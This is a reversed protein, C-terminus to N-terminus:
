RGPLPYLSLGTLRAIRSFDKDLAFVSARYELAIAAILV